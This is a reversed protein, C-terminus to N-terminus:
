SIQESSLPSIFYFSYQVFPYPSTHCSNNEMEYNLMEKSHLLTSTTHGTDDGEVHAGTSRKEIYSRLDMSSRHGEAM